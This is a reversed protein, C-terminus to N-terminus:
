WYYIGLSGKKIQRSYNGSEGTSNYIERNVEFEFSRGLTSDDITLYYTTTNVKVNKSSSRYLRGQINIDSQAGTYKNLLVACGGFSIFTFFPILILFFILRLLMSEYKGDMIRFKFIFLYSVIISPFVLYKVCFMYYSRRDFNLADYFYLFIGPIVLFLIIGAGTIFYKKM